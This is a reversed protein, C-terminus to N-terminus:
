PHTFDIGTGAALESTCVLDLAIRSNVSHNHIHLMGHNLACHKYNIQLMM